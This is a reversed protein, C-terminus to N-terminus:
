PRQLKKKKVKLDKQIRSLTPSPKTLSSM